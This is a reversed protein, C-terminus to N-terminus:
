DRLGPVPDRQRTERPASEDSEVGAPRRAMFAGFALPGLPTRAISVATGVASLGARLWARVPLRGFVLGGALGGAIAFLGRQEHLADRLWGTRARHEHRVRELRATAAAVERRDNNWSM